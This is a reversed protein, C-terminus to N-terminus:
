PPGGGTLFTIRDAGGLPETRGHRGTPYVMRCIKRIRFNTSDPLAPPNRDINRARYRQRKRERTRLFGLRPHRM